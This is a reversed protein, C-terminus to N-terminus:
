NAISAIYSGLLAFWILILLLSLGVHIVGWSIAIKFASGWDLKIEQTNM